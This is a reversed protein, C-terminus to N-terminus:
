KLVAIFSEAIREVTRSNLGAVCMRGSKVMYVAHEQKLKEVQEPNLGTFSFMGRQKTFYSFDRDTVKASVVDQLARRMQAIRARMAAVEERWEQRLREDSLVGAVVHGGFHCPSSYIKRAASKLQGQVLDKEKATPCVVSLAGVREGYLSMNKSFSGSVFLPLGMEAAKRPAYADRDFGDGLGQYAIDMFPILDKEQILRLLEDWQPASLDVGTPNHCCAHLLVVTKASMGKVSEMLRDFMVGGTDKDYYPYTGVEIGCDEFIAIHNAWTPKSVCVKSGPFWRAIFAAGLRLAGTGGLSQMCAVRGEKVAACDDGYVERVAGKRYDPLGDMPLYTHPAKKAVLRDISKSVSGMLPVKGDEDCYVGIGLNVKNPRDDKAFAENLSLIPDGAYYEVHEFM